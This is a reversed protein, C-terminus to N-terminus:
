AARPDGAWIREIAEGIKRHIRKAQAVDSKRRRMEVFRRILAGTPPPAEGSRIRYFAKGPVNGDGGTVAAFEARLEAELEIEVATRM